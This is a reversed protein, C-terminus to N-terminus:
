PMDKMSAAGVIKAKFERRDSLKVTVDSAEQVVHANTLILGDRTVILGSGMGQTPERREPTGFRRFFEYLPDDKPIGAGGDQVNAEGDSIARINVVAPGVEEVLASFDPLRQQRTPAQSLKDEPVPAPAAIAAPADTKPTKPECGAVLAAIAASAVIWASRPKAPQM